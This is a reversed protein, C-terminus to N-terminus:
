TITEHSQQDRTFPNKEPTIFPSDGQKFEEEDVDIESGLRLKAKEMFKRLWKLEALDLSDQVTPKQLATFTNSMQTIVIDVSATVFAPVGSITLTGATLSTKSFAFESTYWRQSVANQPSNTVSVTNGTFYNKAVCSGGAVWGVSTSSISTSMDFKVVCLYNTNPATAPVNIVLGSASVSTGLNSGPLPTSSVGLPAASLANTVYYRDTYVDNAGGTPLRPKTFEIDYSVWMEGITNVNQSGQTFIELKGWDYFKLDESDPIAGTRVFMKNLINSNPVCEIGHILSCSPVTTQCGVYNEAQQKNIFDPETPDYQTVAGWLGLATNTSAVAVGSLTNLYVIMGHIKYEEFNQAVASLWPFLSSQGPNIPFTQYQFDISSQIDKIYERHRIRFGSTLPSFSPVGQSMLSNRVPKNMSYDGQGFIRSIGAGLNRGLKPQNVFSGAFEGAERLARGIITPKIAKVKKSIIKREQKVIQKALKVTKKQKNSKNKPM